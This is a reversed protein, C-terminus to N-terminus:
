LGFQFFCQWHQNKATLETTAAGGSELLILCNAFFGRVQPAKKQAKQPQKTLKKTLM